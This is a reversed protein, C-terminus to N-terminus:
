HLATEPALTITRARQHEIRFAADVGLVRQQREMLPHPVREPKPRHARVALPSFWSRRNTRSFDRGAYLSARRPTHRFFRASRVQGNWSATVPQHQPKPQPSSTISAMVLQWFVADVLAGILREGLTVIIVVHEDCAQTNGQGFLARLDFIPVIVGRLNLVGRM